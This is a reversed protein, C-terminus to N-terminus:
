VEVFLLLNKFDQVFGLFWDLWLEFLELLRNLDETDLGLLWYLFKFNLWFM